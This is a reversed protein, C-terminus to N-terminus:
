ATVVKTVPDSGKTGNAWGGVIASFLGAGGGAHALLIGGPRFKPLTADRFHEPVGEAMGHAGRVIDVGALQLHAEFFETLRTRDWKAEAFVRGHEPGVVLLADFAFPLKPHQVTRLCEALSTALQEPDRALQDVVCRPGEGAFVTVANINPDIGRAVALSTWPSGAEDEAFCFSLKGPMGHAARDIEGPRGGGVNRIAITLNARNGQGFVNVGSNMGIARTGPGNCIIVPGVPMTTALVGHMNFEDTCAAELAAIVWPLYEPLCGAMVANIAVKEVTLEVLDPPAIAVIEEPPRSTGTLMRMVRAETPPVVPLGDTWGRAFLAEMDDEREAFDIRRAHLMSGSHRVRLEDALDPDVSLSGCGPRFEVLDSGLDNLRTITRWENRVWGVTRAVEHGNEVRILTPVTEINHHWSVALDSDHIAQVGDPFSPDDQTFVTCPVSRSTGNALRQIVPVVMVCTACDRKVVIILGDPLRPATM